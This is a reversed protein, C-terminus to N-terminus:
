QWPKSWVINKIQNGANNTECSAITATRITPAGFTVSILFQTPDAAPLSPPLPAFSIRTSETKMGSNIESDVTGVVAQPNANGLPFYRADSVAYDAFTPVDLTATATQAVGNFLCSRTVTASVEYERYYGSVTISGTGLPSVTTNCVYNNPNDDNRSVTGGCNGFATSTAWAVAPDNSTNGDATQPLGIMAVAFKDGGTPVTAGGVTFLQKDVFVGETTEDDPDIPASIALGSNSKGISSAAEGDPDAPTALANVRGRFPQLPNYILASATQVTLVEDLEAGLTHYDVPNANEAQWFALETLNIAAIPLYPLICEIRGLGSYLTADCRGAPGTDALVEAILTRAAPELYDLYLGRAHLYREDVPRPAAITIKEPTTKDLGHKVYVPEIDTQDTNAPAPSPLSIPAILGEWQALAEKVFDGYSVAKAVNPVARAGVNAEVTPTNPNDGTATELLGFHRDYMDAATRVVGDVLVMRCVELYSEGSAAVVLSDSVRSYHNQQAGPSRLAREPDFKPSKSSVDHHDRCCATCNESQQGVAAPDEGANPGVGAPSTVSTPVFVEYKKGTWVAPWQPTRMFQPVIPTGNPRNATLAGYKCQCRIVENDVRKQLRATSSGENTYTLVSFRTGVIAQNGGQGMIEPKPNTAATDQGTASMAVPIVGLGAPDDFRAIPRTSDSNFEDPPPLLGEELGLPSIDTSLALRRTGDGNADTWSAALQVRKFQPDTPGPTGVAFPATGTTTWTAVMQNITLTGVALGAESEAECLWAPVGSVCNLATTGAAMDASSYGTNRLGEMRTALVAAIRGRVKSDASSRTLGGQLAALALLGTSLVVVAILVELLSFGRVHKSNRIVKIM